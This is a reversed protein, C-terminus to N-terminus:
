LCSYRNSLFCVIISSLEGNRLEGAPHIALLGQEQVANAIGDLHGIERMHSQSLREETYCPPLVLPNFRIM